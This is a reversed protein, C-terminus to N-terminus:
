FASLFAFGGIYLPSVINQLHGSILNDAIWQSSMHRLEEAHFTLVRLGRVKITSLIFQMYCVRLRFRPKWISWTSYNSEKLFIALLQGKEFYEWEIFVLPWYSFFHLLCHFIFVFTITIYWASFLTRWLVLTGGGGCAHVVLCVDHSLSLFCMISCIHFLGPQVMEHISNKFLLLTKCMIKNVALCLSLSFIAKM